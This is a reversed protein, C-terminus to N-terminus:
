PLAGGAGRRRPCPPPVGAARMRLKIIKIGPSGNRVAFRNPPGHPLPEAWIGSGLSRWFRSELNWFDLGCVGSGLVWVGSVLGSVWYELSWIGHELIWAGFQLTIALMAM